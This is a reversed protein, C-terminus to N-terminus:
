ADQTRNSDQRQGANKESIRRGEDAEWSDLSGSDVSAGDAEVLRQIVHILTEHNFPKRMYVQFDAFRKKSSPLLADGSVLVTPTVIRKPDEGEMKRLAHALDYGDFGPPMNLDSCVVDFNHLKLCDLAAEASVCTTVEAGNRRLVLSILYLADPSDDVCLVKAGALVISQTM